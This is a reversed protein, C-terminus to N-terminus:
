LAVFDMDFSDLLYPDEYFKLWFVLFPYFFFFFFFHGQGFTCTTSLLVKTWYRVTTYTDFSDM